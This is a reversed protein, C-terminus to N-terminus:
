KFLKKVIWGALRGNEDKNNITDNLCYAFLNNELISYLVFSDAQDANIFRGTMPDYYRSQLYYMGIESDYYYTRYRYPNIAAIGDASTNSVITCVGWADYRYRAVVDGNADTISIIDGQLNKIFYYPTDNYLIGCVTSANDYLPILTNNDWVGKLIHRLVAGSSKNM